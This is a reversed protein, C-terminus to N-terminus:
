RSTYISQSIRISTAFNRTAVLFNSLFNPSMVNKKERFIKYVYDKEIYQIAMLNIAVDIDKNYIYQFM